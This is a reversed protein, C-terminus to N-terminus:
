LGTRTGGRDPEAAGAFRDPAQLRHSELGPRRPCTPRAGGAVLVSRGGGGGAGGATGGDRRVRGPVARAVRSWAGGEGVPGGPGAPVVGAGAGRPDTRDLRRDRGWLAAPRAPHRAM